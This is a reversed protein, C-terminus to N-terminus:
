HQVPNAPPAFFFPGGSVPCPVTRRKLSESGHPPQDRRPPKQKCAAAAARSSPAVAPRSAAPRPAALV